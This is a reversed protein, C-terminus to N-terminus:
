SRLERLRDSDEKPCWLALLGAAILFVTGPEPTQSVSVLYATASYGIGDLPQGTQSDFQEAYEGFSFATDYQQYILLHQYLVTSSDQLLNPIL